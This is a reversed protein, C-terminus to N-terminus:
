DRQRAASEQRVEKGHRQEAGGGRVVRLLSRCGIRGRRNACLPPGRGNLRLFERVVEGHEGAGSSVYHHQVPRVAFEDHVREKRGSPRLEFLREVADAVGRQFEDHISVPVEVM